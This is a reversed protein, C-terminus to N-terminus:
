VIKKFLIVSKTFIKEKSRPKKLSFGAAFFLFCVEGFMLSLACNHISWTWEYRLASLWWASFGTEVKFNQHDQRDV